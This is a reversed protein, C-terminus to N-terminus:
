GPPVLPHEGSIFRGSRSLSLEGGDLATTLFRPAKGRRWMDEAPSAEFDRKNEM